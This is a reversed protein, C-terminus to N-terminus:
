SRHNSCPRQAATRSMYSLFLQGYIACNCTSSQKICPSCQANHRAAMRVISFATSAECLFNERFRELHQAELRLDLQQHLPVGFMRVSDDFRLDRLLPIRAAMRALWAMIRFDAQLMSAVHPHRVKIAVEQIRVVGRTVYAHRRCCLWSPTVTPWRQALTQVVLSLTFVPRRELSQMCVQGPDAGCLQAGAASLRGRHVQAIAGSAQPELNLEDFLENIHAPLARRLAQLTQQKSHKPADTHLTELVRRVGLSLLDPRGAAWQGWKTFAPGCWALTQALMALWLRRLSAHLKTFPYFTVLPIIICLLVVGRQAM